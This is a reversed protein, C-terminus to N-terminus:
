RSVGRRSRGHPDSLDEGALVADLAEEANSGHADDHHCVDGWRSARAAL